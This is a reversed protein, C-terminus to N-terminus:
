YSRSGGWDVQKRVCAYTCHTHLWTMVRKETVWKWLSRKQLDPTPLVQNGVARHRTTQKVSAQSLAPSPQRPKQAQSVDQLGQHGQM